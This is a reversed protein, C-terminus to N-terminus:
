ETRVAQVIVRSVFEDRAKDFAGGCTMLILRESGPPESHLLDRMSIDQSRKTERLEVVYHFRRGDGVELEIGDGVALEGLHKFVGPKTAGSVHGDIFVVGPTGPLVSQRYWGVDFISVPAGVDGSADLGVPLVRAAVGLRPISLLRPM